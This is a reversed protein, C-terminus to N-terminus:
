DVNNTDSNYKTPYVEKAEEKSPTVPKFLSMFLIVDRFKKAHNITDVQRGEGRHRWNM